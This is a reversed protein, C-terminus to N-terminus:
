TWSPSVTSAPWIRNSTSVSFATASIGEGCAPRMPFIRTLCPWVTLIPSGRSVISSAPEAPPAPSPERLRRGRGLLFRSRLFRPPRLPEAQWPLSALAAQAARGGRRLLRLVAPGAGALVPRLGGRLFVVSAGARGAGVGVTTPRVFPRRRCRARRPERAPRGRWAADPGRTPLRDADRKRSRARAAPDRGVIHLREDAREGRATREVDAAGIVPMVSGGNSRKPGISRWGIFLSPRKLAALRVTAQCVTGCTVCCSSASTM